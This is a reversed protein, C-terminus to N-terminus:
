NKFSTTCNEIFFYLYDSQYSIAYKNDHVKDSLDFTTRLLPQKVIMKVLCLLISFIKFMLISAPFFSTKEKLLSKQLALFCNMNNIRLSLKNGFLSVTFIFGISALQALFFRGTRKTSAM